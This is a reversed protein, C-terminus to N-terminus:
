RAPRAAPPLALAPLSAYGEPGVAEIAIHFDSVAGGDVDYYTADGLKVREEWTASSTRRLRVAYTNGEGAVATWVVRPFHSVASEIIVDAPSPPALALSSLTAANAGAIRATYECDVHEALDGFSRGDEVRVNQHQRDFHEVAECFRVAPYGQENFPLHDGGRGLRDPRLVLDATLGAVHHATVEATYRALQRSPSDSEIGLRRQTLADASEALGESFVRVRDIISRGSADAANGVMDNNLMAIVERGGQKATQAWHRAGLLGIEEGSFAIFVLTCPWERGVFARALELVVATGSANDDAGPARAEADSVDGARSDYHGGVVLVREPTALGPLEAVVNTMTLRRGGLRAVEAEFTDLSVLLRGGGERSANEFSDRLYRIAAGINTDGSAVHRSHISALAEIDGRIRMGDIRSLLSAIEGNM